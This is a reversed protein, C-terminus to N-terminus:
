DTEAETKPRQGKKKAVVVFSCLYLEAKRLLGYFNACDEEHCFELIM